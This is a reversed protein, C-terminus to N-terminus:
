KEPLSVSDSFPIWPRKAINNNSNKSRIQLVEAPFLFQLQVLSNSFPKIILHDTYASVIECICFLIEFNIPSARHM